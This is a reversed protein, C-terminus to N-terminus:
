KWDFACVVAFHDSLKKHIVRHSVVKFSTDLLVYDIRLLPIGGSYTRGFFKGRKKFSDQLGKSLTEYSWSVPTDNFDGCLIVPLDSENMKSKLLRAQEARKSYANLLKGFIRKSSKVDPIIDEVEELYQYDLEDFYVSQLHTNFVRVTAAPFRVDTYIAKNSISNEFEIVGSGDIPYKSFTAIGWHDNNRLTVSSSFYYYPYGLENKIQDLNMFDGQDQNYFEQLCLVDPNETEILKMMETRTDKNHSWNYLDFNKVNWSM